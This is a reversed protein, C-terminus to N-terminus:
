NKLNQKVLRETLPSFFMGNQILYQGVFSPGFLGAFRPYFEKHCYYFSEFDYIIIM